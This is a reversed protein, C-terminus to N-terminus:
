KGKPNSEAGMEQALEEGGTRNRSPLEAHSLGCCALQLLDEEVRQIVSEWDGLKPQRYLKASDYWPTDTRDRLWHFSGQYRLLIWVPVGMAGALHAVSTDITIVLDCKMIAVATDFFDGPHFGREGYQLCVPKIGEVAFLRDAYQEPMSRDRLEPTDQAGRWCIGIHSRGFRGMRSTDTKSIARSPRRPIFIYAEGRVDEVKVNLIRPLSFLPFHTDTAHVEHTIEDALPKFLRELSDPVALKIYAGSKAKADKVYRVVMIQDGAGQEGWM